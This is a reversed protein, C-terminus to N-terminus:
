GAPEARRIARLAWLWAIPLQPLLVALLMGFTGCGATYGAAQGRDALLLLACCGAGVLAQLAAAVRQWGKHVFICPLLVGAGLVLLALLFLSFPRAPLVCRLAANRALQEYPHPSPLASRMVGAATHDALRQVPLLFLLYLALQWAIVGLEMVVATLLHGALRAAPPMPLTLWTYGCRTGGRTWLSRASLVGAAAFALGFALPQGGNIYYCAMGQGAYYRNAAMMLLVALQQAAFLACLVAYPRRAMRWNWAAMSLIRKM